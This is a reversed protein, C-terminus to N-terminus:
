KGKMHLLFEVGTMLLTLGGFAGYLKWKFEKLSEVDSKLLSLQGPQGNGLLYHDLREMLTEIKTLRSEVARNSADIASLRAEMGEETM